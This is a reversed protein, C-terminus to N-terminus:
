GRLLFHKIIIFIHPKYSWIFIWKYWLVVRPSGNAVQLKNAQGPWCSGMVIQRPVIVDNSLGIVPQYYCFSHGCRHLHNSVFVVECSSLRMLLCGWPFIIEYSSLRVPLYIPDALTYLWVPGSCPVAWGWSTQCHAILKDLMYRPILNLAIQFDM